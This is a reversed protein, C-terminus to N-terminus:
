KRIAYKWIKGDMIRAVKKRNMVFVKRLTTDVSQLSYFYGERKLEEFVERMSKPKSFFNNDILLQIGGSLGEYSKSKIAVSKPKVSSKELNDEAVIREIKLLRQEISELIKIIKSDDTKRM